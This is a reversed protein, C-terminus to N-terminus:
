RLFDFLRVRAKVLDPRFDFGIALWLGRLHERKICNANYASDKDRKDCKEDNDWSVLVVM